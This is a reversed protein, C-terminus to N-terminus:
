RGNINIEIIKPYKVRVEPNIHNAINTNNASNEITIVLNIKEYSCANIPSRTRKQYPASERKALECAKHDNRFEDEKTIRSINRTIQDFLILYYFKTKNDMSM